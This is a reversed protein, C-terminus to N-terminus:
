HKEDFIKVLTNKMKKAKTTLSPLGGYMQFLLFLGVLEKVKGEFNLSISLVILDILLDDYQIRLISKRKRGDFQIM